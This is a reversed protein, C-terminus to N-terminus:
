SGSREAGEDPYLVCAVDVGGARRLAPPPAPEFHVTVGAGSDEMSSVGSWLPEEVDEAKIRDLIARVGGSGGAGLTATTSPTDLHELDGIV